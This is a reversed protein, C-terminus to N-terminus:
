GAEPYEPKPFKISQNWDCATTCLAVLRIYSSASITLVNYKMELKVRSERCSAISAPSIILMPM